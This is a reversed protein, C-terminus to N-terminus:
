KIARTTPISGVAGSISSNEKNSSQESTKNNFTKM